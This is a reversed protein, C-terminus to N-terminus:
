SDTLKREAKLAEFTPMNPCYTKWETGDPDRRLEYQCQKKDDCFSCVRQLDHFVAPEVRAVEDPNMDMSALRQVMPDAAHPSMQNVRELDAVSLGVDAAIQATEARDLPLPAALRRRFWDAVARLPSGHGDMATMTM